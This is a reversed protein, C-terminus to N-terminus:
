FFSFSLFLSLLVQKVNLNKRLRLLRRSCYHRYRQYLAHRLGNKMRSTSVEMTVGLSFRPGSLDGGSVSLSGQGGEGGFIESKEKKGEMLKTPPAAEKQDVEMSEGKNDSM